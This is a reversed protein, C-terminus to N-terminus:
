PRVSMSSRHSQYYNVAAKAAGEDQVAGLARRCCVVYVVHVKRTSRRPFRPTSCYLKLLPTLALTAEGLALLVAGVFSRCSGTPLLRRIHQVCEQITCPVRQRGCVFHASSLGKKTSQQPSHLPIFTTQRLRRQWRQKASPSSLPVLMSRDISM